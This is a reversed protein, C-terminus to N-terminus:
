LLRPPTTGMRLREQAIQQTDYAPAKPDYSNFGAKRWSSVRQEVDVPHHKELVQTIRDQMMSDTKVVVLSGGRRVGEAYYGADQDQVGISTLGGLLGGVVAGVGAGAVASALPGAAIVPGFGPITILTLGMVLGGIAGLVAGAGAGTALNSTTDAAAPSHYAGKDNFYRGYEEASANAVLNVNDSAIGATSLEQVADRADGLNDYLGVITKLSTDSIM